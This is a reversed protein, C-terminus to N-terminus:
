ALSRTFAALVRSRPRRYLRCSEIASGWAQNVHGFRSWQNSVSTLCLDLPLSRPAQSVDQLAIQSRISHYPHGIPDLFMRTCPSHSSPIQTAPSSIPPLDQPIRIGQYNRKYFLPYILLFSPHMTPDQNPLFHALFISPQCFRL